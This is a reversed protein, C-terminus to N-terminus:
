NWTKKSSKENRNVKRTEERTSKVRRLVIEDSQASLRLKRMFLFDFSEFQDLVVLLEPLQRKASRLLQPLKIVKNMYPLFNLDRAVTVDIPKECNSAGTSLAKLRAALSKPNSTWMALHWYVQLYTQGRRKEWGLDV